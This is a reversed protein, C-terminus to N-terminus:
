KWVAQGKAKAETIISGAVNETLAFCGYRMRL